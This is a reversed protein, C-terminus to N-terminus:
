VQITQDLFRPMQLPVVDGAADNVDAETSHWTLQLMKTEPYYRRRHEDMEDGHRHEDEEAM